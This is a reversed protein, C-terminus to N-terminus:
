AFYRMLRKSADKPFFRLSCKELLFRDGYSDGAAAFFRFHDDKSKFVRKIAKIKQDGKIAPTSLKGTLKGSRIEVDTGICRGWGLYHSIGAALTLFSGTLIHIHSKDPVLSESWLKVSPDIDKAFRDALGFLFAKYERFPMDAFCSAMISKAISQPGYHFTLKSLKPRLGAVLMAKWVPWLTDFPLLTKDLDIFVRQIREFYLSEKGDM